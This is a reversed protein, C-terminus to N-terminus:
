LWFRICKGSSLFEGSREDNPFALSIPPSEAFFFGGRSGSAILSILAMRPSSVVLLIHIYQNLNM